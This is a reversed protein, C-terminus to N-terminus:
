LFIVWSQQEFTNAHWDDCPFGALNRMEDPIKRWDNVKNGRGKKALELNGDHILRFKGNITYRATNTHYCNKRATNATTPMILMICKFQNFQNAIIVWWIIAFIRDDCQSSGACYSSFWFTIFLQRHWKVYACEAFSNERCVAWETCSIYRHLYCSHAGHMGISLRDHCGFRRFIRSSFHAARLVRYNWRNPM